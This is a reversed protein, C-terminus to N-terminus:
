PGSQVSIKGMHYDSNIVDCILNHMFYNVGLSSIITIREFKFKMFFRAKNTATWYSKSIFRFHSVKQSWGSAVRWVIMLLLWVPVSPRCFQLRSSDTVSLLKRLLLQIQERLVRSSKAQSISSEADCGTLTLFHGYFNYFRQRMHIDTRFVYM